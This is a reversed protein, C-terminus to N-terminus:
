PSFVTLFVRVSITIRLEAIVEFTKLMNTLFLMEEPDFQLKIMQSIHVSYILDWDLTMKIHNLQTGVGFKFDGLVPKGVPRKNLLIVKNM